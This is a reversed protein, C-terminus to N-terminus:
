RDGGAKTIPCVEFCKGCQTCADAMAAVRSSLASEFTDAPQERM